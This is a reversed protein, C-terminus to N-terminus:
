RHFRLPSFGSLSCDPAKGQVLQAVLKGTIGGLTLGIHQHGFAFIVSEAAPSQGIVPLSDPLTPRYGLWTSDAPGLPGLMEEAKRGLYNTRKHNLPADLSAIEVTGAVRLGQAMPTCYFGAEAWGVPRSLLNQHKQYLVHYGRETGLPLKETGTGSIRASHAGAALAFKRAALEAGTDLHVTAAEPGATLHSVRQNQWSGGLACFRQQLRHVLAQPDVVHRAGKFLLGRHLPMKIAPELALIQAPTLEDMEVGLRRRLENGERAAEFGERTSWVYLADNQVFLDEAQADAVLPDLGADALQLLGALNQAIEEVRSKRCNALFSLMWRPNRLAHLLDVSLPSEPSLMLSPLSSLVSPSNVPLCAYTAITCASGSVTGSGPPNPDVLAVRLGQKQAWLATSTGVIGAGAVVLDFDM